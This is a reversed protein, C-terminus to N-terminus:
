RSRPPPSPWSSSSQSAASRSFALQNLRRQGDPADAYLGLLAALPGGFRHGRNEGPHLSDSARRLYRTDRLRAPEPEVAAVGRHRGRNPAIYFYRARGVSYGHLTAPVTAVRHGLLEVRRAEDILSGYAFLTSDEDYSPVSVRQDEPASPDVGIRTEEPRAARLVEGPGQSTRTSLSTAISSASKQAPEIVVFPAGHAKIDQLEMLPEHACYVPFDERGYTLFQKGKLTCCLTPVKTNARSCWATRWQRVAADAARNERRGRRYPAADSAGSVRSSCRSAAAYRRPMEGQPMKELNPCGGRNSGPTWRRKSCRM